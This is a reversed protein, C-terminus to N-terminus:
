SRWRRRQVLGLAGLSMLALGGTMPEPVVRTVTIRLLQDNPYDLFDGNAFMADDLIGGSGAAAFGPHPTTVVGGEDVGTDPMAQGFFATNAPLEDNVETGADNTQSGLVFFDAGVFNGMADFIEHALPNGNAVFADNSPILMSAYSFYRNAGSAPDLKFEGVAKEGPGIPPIGAGSALTADLGGALGASSAAFAGTIPGTNGDEALRELVDGGLPVSAAAGGDYTDFSGDHFAVWAPTFFVGNAPALNEITVRVRSAEVAPSGALVVCGAVAGAAMRKILSM